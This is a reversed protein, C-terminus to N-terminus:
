RSHVAGNAPRAPIPPLKSVVWDPRVPFDPSELWDAILQLELATFGITSTRNLSLTAPATKSVTTGSTFLLSGVAKFWAITPANTPLQSRRFLIRSLQSLYMWAELRPGTMERDFYILNTHSMLEIFTGKPPSGEALSYPSLSAFLFPTKDIKDVTTSQIFPSVIPVRRWVIGDSNTAREWQGM